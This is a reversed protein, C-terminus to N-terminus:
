NEKYKETLPLLRALQKSVKIFDRTRIGYKRCFGANVEVTFVTDRHVPILKESLPKTNRETQVIEMKSNVFIIDLPIYTNKMWFHRPKQVAFIFLMGQKEGMSRRFMLGQTTERPNDAIEIDISVIKKMDKSFFTLEGEKTFQPERFPEAYQIAIVPKKEVQCSGASPFGLLSLVPLIFCLLLKSM